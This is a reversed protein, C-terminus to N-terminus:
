KISIAGNSYEKTVCGIVQDIYRVADKPIYIPSHIQRGDPYTDKNSSYGIITAEGGDQLQKTIRYETTEVLYNRGWIILRHDIVRKLVLISGSPYEVMSDGYHRIAATAGPFWDGADIWETPTYVGDVIAVGNQMGGMTIADDYLPILKREDKKEYTKELEAVVNVLADENNSALMNGRGTLLWDCNIDPYISLINELKDSGIAGNNKLSKGFSANSMGISREFEAITLSKYDIYKKLRQLIM